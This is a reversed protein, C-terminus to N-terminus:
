GGGVVRWRGSIALYLLGKLQFHELTAVSHGPEREGSAWGARRGPGSVSGPLAKQRLVKECEYRGTVCKGPSFHSVRVLYVACM